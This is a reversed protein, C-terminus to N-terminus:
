MLIFSLSGFLFNVYHMDSCYRTNAEFRTRIQDSGQTMGSVIHCISQYFLVSQWTTALSPQTNCLQDDPLWNCISVFLLHMLCGLMPFSLIIYSTNFDTTGNHRRTKTEANAWLLSDLWSRELPLTIFWLNNFKWPRCIQHFWIMDPFCLGPIISPQPNTIVPKILRYVYLALHFLIKPSM